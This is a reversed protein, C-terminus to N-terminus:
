RTSSIDMGDSITSNEISRWSATLLIHENQKRKRKSICKTQISVGLGLIGGISTCSMQLTYIYIIYQVESSSYMYLIQM